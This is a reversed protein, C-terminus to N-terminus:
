QAAALERSRMGGWFWALMPDLDVSELVQIEATRLDDELPRYLLNGPGVNIFGRVEHEEVLTAIIKAPDIKDVSLENIAAEGKESKTVEYAGYETLAIGSLIPADAIQLPATPRVQKLAPSETVLETFTLIGAAVKVAADGNTNGVFFRPAKHFRLYRDYLGVQVVASALSKLRINSMFVRDESAVFNFLDFHPAESADWLQQAEMIRRTVEPIRVVSARIEEFDLANLGQFVVAESM